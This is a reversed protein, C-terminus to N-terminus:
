KVILIWGSFKEGMKTDIVYYYTGAPVEVGQYTGDWPQEYGQSYFLKVGYRNYVFVTAETYNKLQAINWLDNSGDGNPTFTNPIVIPELVKVFVQDSSVCGRKNTVTLTYTQSATGSFVPNKISYDNLGIAPSWQYQVDPDTDVDNLTISEDLRIVKDKGASVRPLPNITILVDDSVSSCLGNGTSSLTLMAWGIKVDKPGPIYTAKLATNSPLFQGDGESVWIGGSAGVVAGSLNIETADACVAQDTGANVVPLPVLTVAMSSTAPACSINNTSTLTLVVKLAAKDAASPIYTANLSTNSPSFTGTGSSSWIGTTSLGKVSGKLNVANTSVCLTQDQGAESIPVENVKVDVSSVASVCGNVTVFVTYKGAHSATAGNIIPNQLNSSFNNPGEWTYIAGPIYTAGMVISNGACVPSNSIVVPAAPIANVTVIIEKRPSVCNNSIAQVYYRTTSNLIPTTFNTGTGLMTGGTAQDFWQYVGSDDGVALVTSTGRCISANRADPTLPIPNITVTSTFTATACGGNASITNTIIYIGPSSAKLDIEGTRTSVFVLAPSSSTFIGASAGAPFIPLPNTDGPCFPGSYSFSANPFNTITVKAYTVRPCPSNNTFSVTYTGITSALVDIEGTNKNVFVLGSSSSFVGGGVTYIGPPPTVSIGSKCYTGSSYEFEPDVVPVVQVTVAARPGTCGNSTAQVYYSTTTKLIGTSFVSGTALLRGGVAADYWEYTGSSGTASLTTSNDACITAGSVSPAAPAANIQVTVTHSAAACGGTAAITNTVQYVGPVSASLNIEGTSISRFVLGGPTASFIGASAGPVFIAPSDDSGTCFSTAAYSFRADPANTITINVTSSRPCQSANTFTITYTGIPTAAVNIEGTSTNAFILGPTATFTGGGPTHIVPAPSVAPGSKCYTGSSYEFEPNIIPITTVRVATRPSTCGNITTQVYYTTTLTLAPTTFSNGSQLLNGGSAADFWQYNGGPASATLTTSNGVCIAPANVTPAAPIPTITVTVPTRPGACGDVTTQVYFTTNATLVGTTYSPSTALLSGGTAADYWQYVGGPATATLTTTTGSCITTGAATPAPPISTLTVNVSRRPGACGNVVSQVYYTTNTTLAPTSYTAGTALLNGGSPADFWQYVGGPATATLLASNGSCVIVGPATPAVPLPTVTVTVGTRPGPCGNVTTQVYYITNATLVPTTYTQSNALLTGGTPSDYWQFTGAPATASLIANTGFCITPNIATPAAPLPTVTVTVAARAGTCGNVISQVYYTTNTFLAPTNYSAGTFLLSGGAPSDYWQYTGGPATATLTAGSGACITLPAVTPAVPRPTVTVEVTTRPGPCGGASAQVYYIRNSTLVPTTFSAGTMVLNGGVPADFWDYTGGSGSALLTAAEGVCINAGTVTPAPPLATVTVTVPTRLSECGNVRTTVYYTTTASLAPTTYAIGTGLPVGGSPDTYWTYTGGPATAVLTATNGACITVGSITPSVPIPNVFVTVATRPSTCGGVTTEVYFTTTTSLSATTYFAGSGLSTGGSPSNFWAYTGTSGSATLTASNNACITMGAATPASPSATITVVFSKADSCGVGGSITNTITYDGPTSTALNIEGTSTNVFNLGSTSSFIGASGTAGFNPLPNPGGVCFPGSYTFTANPTDTITITTSTTRPCQSTSTYSVTYVGLGSALVDIEGTTPNIVLGGSGSFTGPGNFIQPAQKPAGTLCFTGSAYKFEPNVQPIVTVEVATRASTCGNDTTQVYFTTTANLAPTNYSAGTGLLAGGSAASYWQYSGGPGTATLTASSGACITSVAAFSPAAPIPTVTVTAATRPGPCGNVTTQVYYTTTSILAPTTFTVGTGLLTGGSAATYWEYIGGPASAALTATSGSCITTGAVTPAAPLPTVSVTVATRPSVCGLLTEVYYTTTATLVPTTFNAGTGVATGGSATTYWSYTGGPATASLTATSGSCITTGSATPAAPPPNVTVVVATRPGTCGNVTTQVYYPTTANLVPTNYSASSALLNGGSAADFWQYTGGPGTATLTATSGTCITVGPATPAAPLPTVTVIVATRPGPCGNVTTQVYYTTNASLAPSTYSSGTFLSTGGVAVDYWQYTGGPATATLTATNGACITTGAATPAAPLATVSVTVPTRASVCGLLTEVYYTTTATLAPTTFSAGTGLLTGGTSATYWSYTGGPGTATLTATAGSCITTGSATPATPTPSAGVIVQQTSPPCGSLQDMVSVTYTGPTSVTISPTTAGTNWAYTYGPLGGSPTATITVSAGSCIMPSSPSIAVTLPPSTYVRVTDSLGSPCNTTPAGSVRYDIYTPAGVAPTVSTTLSGSPNSLYSNYTGAAGPFISTWTVSSAQLGTVSMSGSCTQRLNLDGSAKVTRTATIFYDVGNNGPKCFSISVTSLGTICAPTGIPIQPGCNVTYFSAGTIQNATFNILDSGPNVKINFVICNNDGCWNGDRKKNLVTVTTDTSGSLDVNFTPPTQGFASYTASLLTIVLFFLRLNKPM